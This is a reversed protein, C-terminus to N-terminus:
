WQCAQAVVMDSVHSSLDEDDGVTISELLAAAAQFDGEEVLRIARQVDAQAAADDRQPQFGLWLSPACVFMSLACVASRIIRVGVGSDARDSVSVTMPRVMCSVGYFQHHAAPSKRQRKM